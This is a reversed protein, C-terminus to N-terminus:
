NLKQGVAKLYTEYDDLLNLMYDREADAIKRLKEPWEKLASSNGTMDYKICLLHLTRFQEALDSYSCVDLRIVGRDKLYKIRENM